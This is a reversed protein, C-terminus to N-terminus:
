MSVWLYLSPKLLSYQRTPDIARIIMGLVGYVTASYFCPALILSGPRTLPFEAPLEALRCCEGVSSFSFRM